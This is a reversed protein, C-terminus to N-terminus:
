RRSGWSRALVISPKAVSWRGTGVLAGCLSQPERRRWLGDIGETANCRGQLPVRHTSGRFWTPQTLVRAGHRRQTSSGPPLVSSDQVGKAAGGRNVHIQVGHVCPGSAHRPPLPQRVLPKRRGCSMAALSLKSKTSGAFGAGRIAILGRSVAM